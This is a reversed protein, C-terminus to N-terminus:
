GVVELVRLLIHLLLTQGLQWVDLQFTCAFVFHVEHGQLGRLRERTDEIVEIEIFGQFQLTLLSFYLPLQDSQLLNHRIRIKFDADILKM